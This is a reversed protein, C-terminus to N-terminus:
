QSRWKRALCGAGFLVVGAITAPEPVAATATWTGSRLSGPTGITPVSVFSGIYSGNASAQANYMLFQGPAFGSPSGGFWNDTIGCGSRGCFFYGLISPTSPDFWAAINTLTWNVEPFRAVFNVIPNAYRTVTWLGPYEAPPVFDERLPADQDAIYAASFPMPQKVIAVKDTDYSFEGTGVQVGNSEFTLNWTLLAAQAPQSPAIAVSTVCGAMVLSSVTIGIKM